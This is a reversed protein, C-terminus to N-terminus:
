IQITKEELDCPSVGGPELPLALPDQRIGHLVDLLSNEPVEAKSDALPFYNKLQM